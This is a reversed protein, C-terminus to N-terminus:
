GFMRWGPRMPSSDPAWAIMQGFMGSELFQGPARDIYYGFIYVILIYNIKKNKTHCINMM